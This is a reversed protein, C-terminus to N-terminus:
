QHHFPTLKGAPSSEKEFSALLMNESTIYALKEKVSMWDPNLLKFRIIEDEIEEKTRPM